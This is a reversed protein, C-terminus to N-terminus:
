AGRLATVRYTAANCGRHHTGPGLRCLPLGGWRAFAGWRRKLPAGILGLVPIVRAVLASRYMLYGLLLANVAPILGPGLLFTGDRVAVLSKGIIVLSRRGAPTV